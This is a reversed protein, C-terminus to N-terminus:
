PAQWVISGDWHLGHTALTHIIDDAAGPVNRPTDIDDIRLYWPIGQSRADLFSATAALLSGM